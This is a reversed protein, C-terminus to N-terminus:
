KSYVNLMGHLTPINKYGEPYCGHLMFHFQVYLSMRKNIAQKRLQFTKKWHRQVLRLWHTKLIVRIIRHRVSFLDEYYSVQTKMIELKETSSVSFESIYNEIDYYSYHFFTPIQIAMLMFLAQGIDQPDNSIYSLGLYYTNNEKDSDLFAAERNEIEYLILEDELDFLDSDVTSQTANENEEDGENGGGIEDNNGDEMGSGPIEELEPPFEDYNMNLEEVSTNSIDTYQSCEALVSRENNEINALYPMDVWEVNNEINGANDNIEFVNHSQERIFIYENSQFGEMNSSKVIGTIPPSNENEITECSNLKHLINETQTSNDTMLIPEDAKFSMIWTANKHLIQALAMAHHIHRQFSHLKKIIKITSKAFLYLYHVSYASAVIYLFM